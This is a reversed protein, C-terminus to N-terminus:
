INMKNFFNHCKVINKKKSYYLLAKLLNQTESTEWFGYQSIIKSVIDNNKYIYMDFTTNKLNIKVKKINEEILDNKFIIQNECFYSQYQKYKDNDIEIIQTINQQENNNNNQIKILTKNNQLNMIKKHELIIKYELLKNIILIQILLMLFLQLKIITLEM